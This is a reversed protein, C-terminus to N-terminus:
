VVNILKNIFTKIIIKKLLFLKNKNHFDLDSLSYQLNKKDFDFESVSFLVRIINTQLYTYIKTYIKYNYNYNISYKIIKNILFSIVGEEEVTKLKSRWRPLQEQLVLVLCGEMHVGVMRCLVLCARHIRKHQLPHNCRCHSQEHHFSRHYQWKLIMCLEEEQHVYGFRWRRLQDGCHIHRWHPKHLLLQEMSEVLVMREVLEM